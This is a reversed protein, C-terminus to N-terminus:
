NREFIDQIKKMSQDIATSLAKIRYYTISYFELYQALVYSYDGIKAIMEPTMDDLEGRTIKSGLLTLLESAKDVTKKLQTRDIKSIRAILVSSEQIADKLDNNNRLVTGAKVETVVSNKKFCKAADEGAETIGRSIAAYKHKAYDTSKKDDDNSLLRSIFGIYNNLEEPLLEIQSVSASLANLYTHYSASMGEPVYIVLLSIDLFSHDNVLKLFKKQDGTLSIAPQSLDSQQFYEKLDDVLPSIIRQVLEATNRISFAEHAIIKQKHQISTLM